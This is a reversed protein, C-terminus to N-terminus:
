YLSSELPQDTGKVKVEGDKFWIWTARIMLLLIIPILAPHLEQPIIWWGLLVLGNLIAVGLFYKKLLNSDRNIALWVAAPLHLPFAWLINYNDSAADHNTVTWILFMVIGVAGVMSFVVVDLVISQNKNKYQYLSYAVVLLLILWFVVKPTFLTQPIDVQKPIFVKKSRLVLPVPGDDTQISAHAFNDRIYFPLYMYEHPTALRDIKSGLGLDIGLDGWPQYKTCIDILDRITYQTDIHSYDYTLKGELNDEIADRVRTACNDFFYDYLYYRNEPLKNIELFDFINQKQKQNLNLVQEDISRNNHVYHDRFRRYGNVALKYNLYGKAFDTYFKPNDFDFVGYNYVSDFNIEGDYVRIASHWFASFLEGQDPGLTLLSIQANPSLIIKEARATLTLSLFLLFSLRVTLSKMAM